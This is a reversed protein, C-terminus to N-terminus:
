ILDESSLLAFTTSLLNFPNPLREAVGSLLSTMTFSLARFCSTAHPSRMSLGSFEPM